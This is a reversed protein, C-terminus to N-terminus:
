GAVLNTAVPTRYAKMAPVLGALVAVVTVALLFLWEYGGVRAWNISEGMVRQMYASGAAALLHGVLLGIVAGLLGILGAELCIIALIRQRTAGLARLIAIERLRASVSNYISVLIAVTAVITVLMSILLLVNSSPELFIRFFNTMEEAPNVAQAEPGNNFTYQLSRVAFPSRTRILVVSVEWQERPLHLDITGDPNVHYVHDHDHDEEGEAHGTAGDGTAQRTAPSTASTTSSTAPHVHDDDHNDHAAPATTTKPSIFNKLVAKNPDEGARLAAHAALAEEHEVITYFTILPIFLNKDAATHTPALVGVVEWEEAHEDPKQNEAPLGHTAKFKDGLKLGTLKSVESGIVAEFKRPHFVRGQGFQYRRGPRYEMVSADAPMKAGADDYGFLQPITGIIRQGKYSDGVAYPIAVKVLPRFKPSTTLEEYLSYPINGPSKDIQYVTNLTLQLPSGKPGVLLQYGYENQGFLAKGERQLIMVAVALAVGLVVSLMTLWTSLSRQRMQKLVLQFLNM